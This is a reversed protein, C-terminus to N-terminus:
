KRCDKPGRPAARSEATEIATKQILHWRYYGLPSLPEM